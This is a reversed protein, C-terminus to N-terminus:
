GAGYPHIGNQKRHLLDRFATCSVNYYEKALLILESVLLFLAFSNPYQFSGALRGSVSFYSNLAPIQMLVATIVAVVAAVYPLHSLISETEDKQMIVFMYLVVPLFKFFGIIAMGRDIAWLVCIFYSVVLLLISISTLDVSFKLKKDRVAKVTLWILMIVSLFCSVYEYFAGSFIVALVLIIEAFSTKSIIMKM